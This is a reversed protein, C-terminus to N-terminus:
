FTPLMPAQRTMLQAQMFLSAPRTSSTCTLRPRPTTSIVSRAMQTLCYRLRSPKGIVSFKTTNPLRIIEKSVLPLLISQTGSMAKSTYEKQLKQMNNSNYHKKVFPCGDNFWELVVFKGRLKSLAHAKGNTDQLTFDPATKGVLATEDAAFAPASMAGLALSAVSLLALRSRSSLQKLM